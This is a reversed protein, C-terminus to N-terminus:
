ADRGQVGAGFRPAHIEETMAGEKRKGDFTM